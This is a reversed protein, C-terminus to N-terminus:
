ASGIAMFVLLGLIILPFGGAAIAVWALARALERHRRDRPDIPGSGPAAEKRSLHRLVLMAQPISSLALLLGCCIAVGEAM